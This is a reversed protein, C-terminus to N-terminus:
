TDVESAPRKRDLTYQYAWREAQHQVNQREGAGYTGVARAVDDLDPDLALWGKGEQKVLPLCEGTYPDFLDAMRQLARSITSKNRGTRRALEAAELGPTAQLQEWVEYAAKGLGAYRFADPCNRVKGVEVCPPPSSTPLTRLQGTKADKGALISLNALKYVAALQGVSAKVLLLLGNALLRATAARGTQRGAIGALEALTRESAAYELAGARWAIHCHALFVARDSSGTRGPWPQAEAWALAAQAAARGPSTHTESWALANKFSRELWGRAHGEGRERRLRQFHGAGPYAVFLALVSAYDHGAGILSAIASQEVASADQREDASYGRLICWAKDPIHPTKGPAPTQAELVQEANAAQAAGVDAFLRLDALTLKPLQRPDGALLEYTHDDVVSGPGVVYASQGYRLEGAGVGPRLLKSQGALPQTARIYVQRGIGSATRVFPYDGDPDLGLGALIRQVTAITGLSNKEDCDIFVSLLAGGGRLGINADTPADLWQEAPPRTGFGKCLPLKSGPRVPIVDFDLATLEDAWARAALSGTM